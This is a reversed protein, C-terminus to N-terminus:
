RWRAARWGAAVAEAEDCFWREGKDENIRTRRYHPSWPTHYIREGAQSINGKIPCGPRPAEAAAREWGNDRYDWPTENVGSWIGVDAARAAAEQESYADSYRVFSWALGESVLAAGLDVAGSFCQGIVRGYADRDLARCQIPGKGVLEALRNTAGTGCAWNKGRKDSCSQGAEPADIGNLRIVIPGISLTDGDTIRATGEIVPVQEAVVPSAALLLAILLFRAHM